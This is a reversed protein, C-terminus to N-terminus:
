RRVATATPLRGSRSTRILLRLVFFVTVALVVGAVAMIRWRYAGGRAPRNSTWFGSPRSDLMQPARMSSGDEPPKAWPVAEPNAGTNRPPAETAPVAREDGIGYPTPQAVAVGGWSTLVALVVLAPLRM